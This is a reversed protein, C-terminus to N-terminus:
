MRASKHHGFVFPHIITDKHDRSIILNNSQKEPEATFSSYKAEFIHTFFVLFLLMGLWAIVSMTM